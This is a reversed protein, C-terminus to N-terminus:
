ISFNYDDSFFEECIKKPLQINNEDFLIQFFQPLLRKTVEFVKKDYERPFALDIYSERYVCNIDRRGDKYNLQITDIKGTKLNKCFECVLESNENNPIKIARIKSYLEEAQSELEGQKRFINNEYGWLFYDPDDFVIEPLSKKMESYKGFNVISWGM